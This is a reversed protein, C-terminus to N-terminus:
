KTEAKSASATAAAAAKARARAADMREAEAGECSGQSRLRQRRACAADGPDRLVLTPFVAKKGGGPM